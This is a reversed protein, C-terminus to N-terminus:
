KAKQNRRSIAPVAHNPNAIPKDPSAVSPAFKAPGDKRFFIRTSVISKNARTETPITPTPVAHYPRM